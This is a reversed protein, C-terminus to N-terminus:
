SAAATPEAPGTYSFVVEHTNKVTATMQRVSVLHEGAVQMSHILLQRAMEGTVRTGPGSINIRRRTPRGQPDNGLIEVVVDITARSKEAATMWREDMEKGYMRHSHRISYVSFVFTAMLLAEPLYEEQTSHLWRSPDTESQHQFFGRRRVIWDCFEEVNKNIPAGRQVADAHSKADLEAHAKQIEPNTSFRRAVEATKFKGGAYLRELFFYYNVFADVFFRGNIATRGRRFFQAAEREGRPWPDVLLGKAALDFSIRNSYKRRSEGWNPIPIKSEEDVNEPEFEAQYYETDIEVPLLMGLACQVHDLRERIDALLLGHSLRITPMKEDHIMTPALNVAQGTLTATIETINDLAGVFSYVVGDAEIPWRDSLGFPESFQFRFRVRM